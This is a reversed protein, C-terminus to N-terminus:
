GRRCGEGGRRCRVCSSWERSRRGWSRLREALEAVEARERHMGESIAWPQFGEGWGTEGRSM